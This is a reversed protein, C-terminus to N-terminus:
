IRCSDQNKTFIILIENGVVKVKSLDLNFAPSVVLNKAQQDYCNYRRGDKDIDWAHTSNNVNMSLWVHHYRAAKVLAGRYKLATPNEPSIEIKAESVLYLGKGYSSSANEVGKISDYLAVMKCDYDSIDQGDISHAYCNGNGFKEMKFGPWPGETVGHSQLVATNSKNDVECATWGYGAFKYEKGVELSINKEFM